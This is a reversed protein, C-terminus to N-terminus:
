FLTRTFFGAETDPLICSNSLEGGAQRGGRDALQHQTSCFWGVAWLKQVLPWKSELDLPMWSGIWYLRRQRSHGPKLEDTGGWFRGRFGRPNPKCAQTKCRPPVAEQGIGGRAPSNYDALREGGLHAFLKCAAISAISPNNPCNLAIWKWKCPHACPRCGTQPPLTMIQLLLLSLSSDLCFLPIKSFLLFKGVLRDGHRNIGRTVYVSPIGSNRSCWSVSQIRRLPVLSDLMPFRLLWSPLLQNFAWSLLLM